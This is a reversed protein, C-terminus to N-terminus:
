KTESWSLQFATSFGKAPRVFGVKCGLNEAVMRVITLGLGAGGMGLARRAQSIKLRRVFPRFLEDATALDV